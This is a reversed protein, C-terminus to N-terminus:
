YWAAMGETPEDGGNFLDCLKNIAHNAYYYWNSDETSTPLEEETLLPEGNEARMNNIANRMDNLDDAATHCEFDEGAAKDVWVSETTTNVIIVGAEKSFDGEPFYEYMFQNNTKEKLKFKVM